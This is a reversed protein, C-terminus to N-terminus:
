NQRGREKRKENDRVSADEELFALEAFLCFPKHRVGICGMLGSIMFPYTFIHTINAKLVTNFM